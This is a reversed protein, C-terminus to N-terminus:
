ENIQEKADGDPVQHPMPPKGSRLASLSILALSIVGWSLGLVVGADIIGRWPQPLQRILIVAIVILATGIFVVMRTRKPAAFYGVVFLPALLARFATPNDRLYFARAVVRPVFSKQFGRYGESYAMFATNVIFLTWQAISWDYSWADILHRSLRLSADSLVVALGGLGWLMALKGVVPKKSTESHM